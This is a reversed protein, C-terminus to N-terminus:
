VGHRSDEANLRLSVPGHGAESFCLHAQATNNTGQLSCDTPLPRDESFSALKTLAQKRKMAVRRSERMVAFCLHSILHSWVDVVEAFSKYSAM